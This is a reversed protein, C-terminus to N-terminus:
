FMKSTLTMQTRRLGSGARCGLSELPVVAAYGRAVHLKNMRSHLEGVRGVWGCALWPQAPTYRAFRHPQLLHQPIIGAALTLLEMRRGCRLQSACVFRAHAGDRARHAGQM